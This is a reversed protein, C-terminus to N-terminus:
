SKELKTLDNEVVADVVSAHSYGADVLQRMAGAQTALVNADDQTTKDAVDTM